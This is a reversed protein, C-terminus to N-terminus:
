LLNIPPPIVQHDQKEQCLTVKLLEQMFAIGQTLAEQQAAMRPLM